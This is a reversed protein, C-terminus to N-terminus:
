APPHDAVYVGDGQRGIIWGQAKLEIMAAYIPSYSVRHLEKLKAISPLRDGPKLQGSRIQTRIAEALRDRKHATMM